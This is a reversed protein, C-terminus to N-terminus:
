DLYIGTGIFFDTDPIREIYSIKKEELNTSFNMRYYEVYGEGVDIILECMEHIYKNGKTDILDICNTGELDKEIAHAICIGDTNCIFFYGTSDTFFKVRDIFKQCFNIQDDSNIYINKFVNSIGLVASHVVNKVIFKNADLKTMENGLGSDYYGTGIFYDSNPILHVYAYKQQQQQTTPNIFFYGIFGKGKDNLSDIIERVYYKGQVDQVDYRNQGVIDQNVGHAIMNAQMDEIFYYGTIDDFFRINNIYVTCFNIRDDDDTILNGFVNGFCNATTSVNILTIETEVDKETLLDSSQAGNDSSCSNLLLFAFFAIQILKIFIKSMLLSYMNKEKKIFIDFM